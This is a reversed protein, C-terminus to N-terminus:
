TMSVIKGYAAFDRCSLAMISKDSLQVAGTWESDVPWLELPTETWRLRGDRVIGDSFVVRNAYGVGAPDGSPAPVANPDIPGIDKNTLFVVALYSGIRVMQGSIATNNSGPDFVTGRGGWSRGDDGSIVYDLRMSTDTQVDVAMVLREGVSVISNSGDRMRANDPHLRLNTPQTWTESFDLSTVRSIQQNTASLMDSYTMQITKGDEAIRLFPGYVQLPLPTASRQVVTKPDTWTKGGDESRAVVLRFMVYTGNATIENDEYAALITPSARKGTTANGAATTTTPLELLCGANLDRPGKAIVGLPKFTKGDDTSRSVQLAAIWATNTNAAM